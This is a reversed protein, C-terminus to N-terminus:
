EPLAPMFLRLGVTVFLVIAIAWLTGHSRPKTSRDFFIFKFYASCVSVAFVIFTEVMNSLSQAGIGLSTLAIWIVMGVIPLGLIFPTQSVKKRAWFWGPLILLVGLIAM